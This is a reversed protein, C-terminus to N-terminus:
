AHRILGFDGIKVEGQGDRLCSSIADGIQSSMEDTVKIDHKELWSVVSKKINGPSNEKNGAQETITEPQEGVLSLVQVKEPRGEVVRGEGRSGGTGPVRTKTLVAAKEISSQAQALTEGEYAGAGMFFRVAVLLEELHDKTWNVDAVPNLATGIKRCLEAAEKLGTLGQAAKHYLKAKERRGEDASSGTAAEDFRDAMSVWMGAQSRATRDVDKAQEVQSVIQTLETLPKSPDFSMKTAAM